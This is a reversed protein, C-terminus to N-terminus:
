GDRESLLFVKATQLDTELARRRSDVVPTSLYVLKTSEMTEDFLPFATLHLVQAYVPM